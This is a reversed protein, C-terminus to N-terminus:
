LMRACTTSIPSALSASSSSSSAAARAWRSSGRVVTIDPKSNIVQPRLDGQDPVSSRQVDQRDNLQAVRLEGVVVASDGDALCARIKPCAAEAVQQCCGLLRDRFGTMVLLPPAIHARRCSGRGGFV